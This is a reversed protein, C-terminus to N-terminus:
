HMNSKIGYKEAWSEKSELYKDYDVTYCLLEFNENSVVSASTFNLVGIEKIIELRDSTSIPSKWIYDFVEWGFENSIFIDIIYQQCAKLNLYFGKAWEPRRNFINSIVQCTMKEKILETEVDKIMELFTIEKWTDGDTPSVISNGARNSPGPQTDIIDSQSINRPTTYEDNTSSMADDTTQSQNNEGERRKSRSRKGRKKKNKKIECMYQPPMNCLEYPSKGDKLAEKLNFIQGRMVAMQRSFMGKDFGSDRSFIKRLEDCLERVFFANEFLPVYEQVIEPLYPERAFPLYMWGFPYGRFEDPHKFPFALGNDIAAVFYKPVNEKSMEELLNYEDKSKSIGVAFGKNKRDSEIIKEVLIDNRENEKEEKLNDNTITTDNENVKDNNDNSTNKEKDDFDILNEEEPIADIPHDNEIIKEDKNPLITKVLWNDNGRDTNRIIYDLMTMKQFQLLFHKKSLDPLEAEKSEWKRLVIYADEYGKVFVQLSGIKSPLGTRKFVKAIQPYRNSIRQKTRAKARDIKGYNFTPAALAVVGTPPVVNLGLKQDIYSAGAESLYGQQM